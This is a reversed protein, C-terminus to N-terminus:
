QAREFSWDAALEPVEVARLVTAVVARVEVPDAFGCARIACTVLGILEARPLNELRALSADIEHLLLLLRAARSDVLGAGAETGVDSFSGERRWVPSATDFGPLDVENM